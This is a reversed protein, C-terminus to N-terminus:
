LPVVAAVRPDKVFDVLQRTWSERHGGCGLMPCGVLCLWDGADECAGGVGGGGGSGSCIATYSLPKVCREVVLEPLNRRM